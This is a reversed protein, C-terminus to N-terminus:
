RTFLIRTFFSVHISFSLFFFIVDFSIDCIVRPFFKRRNYASAEITKTDICSQFSQGKRNRFLNGDYQFPVSKVDFKGNYVDVFSSCLTQIKLQFGRRNANTRIFLAVTQWELLSILVHVHIKSFTFESHTVLTTSFLM